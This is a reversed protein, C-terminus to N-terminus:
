RCGSSPTTSRTRSARIFIPDALVNQYNALGIFAGAGSRINWQWVSIFLAYLVSGINLVLFLLM